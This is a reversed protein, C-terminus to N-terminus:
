AEFRFYGQIANHGRLEEVDPLGLETSRRWYRLAKGVFAPSGPITSFASESLTTPEGTPGRLPELEAEAYIGIVLTGKGEEVEFTIPARQWSIEGYLQAIDALPGGLKGTWAAILVREQEPTANADIFFAGRINGQLINGPIDDMEAVTLGSVDVGDITGRDIRYAQVAQCTPNDPNEGVWCPCLVNCDCVELLRGELQYGM